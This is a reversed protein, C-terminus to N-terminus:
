GAAITQEAEEPATIAALYEDKKKADIREIRYKEPMKDAGLGWALARARMGNDGTLV